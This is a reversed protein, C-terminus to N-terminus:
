SLPPAYRSKSRVSPPSRAGAQYQILTENVFENGNDVDLARLAFPLGLRIHELTEVILGSERVVM